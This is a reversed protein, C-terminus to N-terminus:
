SNRERTFWDVWKAKSIRSSRIISSVTGIPTIARNLTVKVGWNYEGPLYYVTDDGTTRGAKFGHAILFSVINKTSLSRLPNGSM